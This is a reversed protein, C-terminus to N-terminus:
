RRFGSILLGLVVLGPLAVSLPETYWHEIVAAPLRGLHPGFIWLGVATAIVVAWLVAGAAVDKARRALPDIDQTALDVVTEIATNIAEMCIVLGIALWVLVVDPNALDLWRAAAVVGVAAAFHLRMNPQSRWSYVFGRWAFAFAQFVTRRPLAAVEGETAGHPM